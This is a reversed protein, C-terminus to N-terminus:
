PHFNPLRPRWLRISHDDSASALLLPIRPHWVVDNVVASHSSPLTFPASSPLSTEPSSVDWMHILSDESGSALLLATQHHHNHNHNHNNQQQQGEVPGLEGEEGEEGEESGFGGISARIIYRSQPQGYLSSHLSMTQLNYVLITQKHHLAKFPSGPTMTTVVLFSHDTSLSCSTLNLEHELFLSPPLFPRQLSSSVNRNKKLGSSSSSSSSPSPTSHQHISQNSSSSQIGGSNMNNHHPHAELWADVDTFCIRKSQDITIVIGSKTVVMDNIPSFKWTKIIPSSPPHSFSPSPSFFSVSSQTTRRTASTTPTTGDVIEDHEQTSHRMDSTHQHNHHFSHYKIARELSVLRLRGDLGAFVFHRAHLPTSTTSSLPPLDNQPAALGSSSSTWVWHASTLMDTHGGTPTTTIPHHPHHPHHLHHPPPPAALTPAAPDDGRHSSTAAAPVTADTTTSTTNTTTANATTTATTPPLASSTHEMRGEEAESRQHSTSGTSRRSGNGNSHRIGSQSDASSSSSSSSSTKSTKPTKQNVFSVIERERVDLVVVGGQYCVLLMYFPISSSSSIPHHSSEEAEEVQGNQGNQDNQDDDYKQEGEGEEQMKSGDNDNNIVEREEEVRVSEEIDMSSSLSSGGIDNSPISSTLTMSSSSSIPMMRRRRRRSKSSDHDDHHHEDQKKRGDLHNFLAWDLSVITKRPFFYQTKEERVREANITAITTNGNSSSSSSSSSSTSQNMRKKKEEEEVTSPVDISFILHLEYSSSMASPSHQQQSTDEKREDMEERKVKMGEVGRMEGEFEEGNSKEDKKKVVQHIFVKGSSSGSALYNGCPSFALVLMQEDVEDEVDEEVSTAMSSSSAVHSPAHRRRNNLKKAEEVRKEFHTRRTGNLGNMEDIEDMEDMGVKWFSDMHWLSAISDRQRGRVMREYLEYLSAENRNRLMSIGNMDRRTNYSSSYFSHSCSHDEFLNIEERRGHRRRVDLGVQGVDQRHHWDGTQNSSFPSSLSSSSSSSNSSHFNGSLNSRGTGVSSTQTMPFFSAVSRQHPHHSLSSSSSSSPHNVVNRRGTGREGSEKRNKSSSAAILENRGNKTTYSSISPLSQNDKGERAEAAQEKEECAREQYELAQQLLISLRGQPVISLSSPVLPEIEKMARKRGEEGSGSWHVYEKMMRRGEDSGKVFVICTSLRNLESISFWFPGNTHDSTAISQLTSPHFSSTSKHITTSSSLLPVLENRLVSMAKEVHKGDLLELYKQRRICFKIKRLDEEYQIGFELLITEAFDWQGSLFSSRFKSWCDQELQIHSEAELAHVASRCAVFVL